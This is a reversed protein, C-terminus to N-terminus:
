RAAPDRDADHQVRMRVGNGNTQHQGNQEDGRGDDSKSEREEIRGRMVLADKHEAVARRGIESAPEYSEPFLAALVDRAFDGRWDYRGAEALRVMLFADPLHRGDEWNKISQYSIARGLSDLVESLLAAFARLTAQQESTGVLVRYDRVIQAVARRNSLTTKIL